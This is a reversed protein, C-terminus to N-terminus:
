LFGLAKLQQTSQPSSENALLFISANM